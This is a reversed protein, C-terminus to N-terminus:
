TVKAPHTERQHQGPVALGELSFISICIELTLLSAPIQPAFPSQDGLTVNGLDNVKHTSLKLRDRSRPQLLPNQKFNQNLLSYNLLISTKLDLIGYSWITSRSMVSFQVFCCYCFLLGFGFGFFSCQCFDLLKFIAICNIAEM